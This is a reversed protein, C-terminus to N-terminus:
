RVPDVEKTIVMQIQEHIKKVKAEEEATPKHYRGEELNLTSLLFVIAADVSMQFLLFLIMLSWRLYDVIHFSRLSWIIFCILCHLYHFQFLCVQTLDVDAIGNSFSPGGGSDDSDEGSM